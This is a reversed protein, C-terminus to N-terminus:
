SKHVKESRRTLIIFNDDRSKLSDYAICHATWGQDQNKHHAKVAAVATSSATRRVFLFRYLVETSDYCFFRIGSSWLDLLPSTWVETVMGLIIILKRYLNTTIKMKIVSNNLQLGLKHYIIQFEECYNNMWVLLILLQANCVLGVSDTDM